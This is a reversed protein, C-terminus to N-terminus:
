LTVLTPKLREIQVGHELGARVLDGWVLGNVLGKTTKGGDLYLGYFLIKRAGRKVCEECILSVYPAPRAIGTLGERIYGDELIHVPIVDRGLHEILPPWGERHREPVWVEARPLMSGLPKYPKEAVWVDPFDDVTRFDGLNRWARGLAVVPGDAMLHRNIKVELGPCVVNWTAGQIM